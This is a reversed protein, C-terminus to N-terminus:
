WLRIGKPRVEVMEGCSMEVKVGAGSEYWVRVYIQRDGVEVTLSGDRPVKFGFVYPVELASLRGLFDGVM